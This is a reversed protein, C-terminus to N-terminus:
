DLKCFVTITGEKFILLSDDIMKAPQIKNEKVLGKDSSYMWNQTVALGINKLLLTEKLLEDRSYELNGDSKYITLKFINGSKDFDARDRLSYKKDDINLESEPSHIYGATVELGRFISTINRKRKHTNCALVCLLIFFWVTRTFKRQKQINM